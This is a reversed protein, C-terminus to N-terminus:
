HGPTQKLSFLRTTSFTYFNQKRQSLLSNTNGAHLQFLFLLFNIWQLYKLVCPEIHDIGFSSHCCEVIFRWRFEKVSQRRVLKMGNRESRIWWSIHKLLGFSQVTSAYHQSKIDTYNAHKEKVSEAASGFKQLSKHM